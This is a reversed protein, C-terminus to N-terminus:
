KYNVLLSQTQKKKLPDIIQLQYMGNSLIAPLSINYSANGGPHELRESLVTEGTTNLLRIAYKGKIQNSFQLNITHGEVPNPYAKVSATQAAPIALKKFRIRFRNAASSAPDENITFSLTTTTTLDISTATKLYDDELIASLDSNSLSVGVIELKYQQQKMNWMRFQISDADKLPQRAEIALLKSDNEVAFNEGPNGIKPADEDDIANTFSNNFAITNADRMDSGDESYLRTELKMLGSPSGPRFGLGNGGNTKSSEHFTITGNGAGAKVLFAQGSEIITNPQGLVYSGGSIMCNFNNIASFTQYIGLSNGNLKKSDWVYFLNNVGPSRTLGTFDIASAYLNPVLTFGNAAVSVPQDGMNINGTTRLTTASSNNINGSIGKSRDGRIYLFYALKDDINNNTNNVGTWGTGNWYLMAANQATNDFGASQAVAIPGTSTIQTGYGPLNNDQPNPNADGEQWAQRITQGAGYTPVSLLRWSRFGNDPIYREVTVPGSIYNGAANGENISATKTATSRLVLNGFYVYFLGKVPVISDTIILKTQLQTIGSGTTNFKIAALANSIGDTTQDMRLYGNGNHQYVLSSSPSGKLIFGYSDGSISLAHGNLDVTADANSILKYVAADATLQPQNAVLPINVISIGTPVANCDWNAPDQWNSSVSGNWDCNTPLVDTLGDCNDDIGNTLNEAVGPNIAPNNDDCDTGGGNYLVYGPPLTYSGGSCNVQQYLSFDTYGDGDRDIYAYNPSVNDDIMGNCDNDIGDCIEQAGPHVNFNNDMCDTSDLIYSHYQDDALDYYYGPYFNDTRSVAPDGYGDNDSDKFLKVADVLGDCNDDIGNADIEEAGPHISGNTDDCDSNNSVYGSHTADCTQISNLADGYGDGDTDAYYTIPQDDATGNCDEDIGNNCIDVAGPHINPDNDDCDANDLVYGTHDAGCIYNSANTNGYGDGDSDAYYITGGLINNDNDDCDQQWSGDFRYWHTPLAAGFCGNGLNGFYGDEDNDIYFLGGQWVTNDNDNCDNGSPNTIYGDPVTFNAGVCVTNVDGYNGYGDGDNDRYFTVTQWVTNDNDDCDAGLTTVSYGPALNGYCTNEFSGYYGDGDGDFYVTAYQWVTANNDDCDGYTLSFGLPPTDAAAACTFATNFGGYGDHDADIYFEFQQQLTVIIGNSTANPTTACAANSTIRCKVLDNNYFGPQTFTPSNTGANITFNFNYITWQYVPNSGGNVPTATFTLPQDACAPISGQTLAISVSPTVSSVISLDAANDATVTFPLSAVVRIRYGNGPVTNSPIIANISGSSTTNISGINVPSAFSGAADSLQATFVNGTNFNAASYSISLSNGTCFSTSSLPGMAFNSNTVGTISNIYDFVNYWFNIAQPQPTWSYTPPTLSGFLAFGNGWQKDALAASDLLPVNGKLLTDLGNGTIVAHNASNGAFGYKVPTFPGHFITDTSDAAFVSFGTTGDAYTIFTSDFGCSIVYPFTLPACNIFLRGGGYVWSEILNRNSSLYPKLLVEDGDSGEIMVFSTAANFVSSPNTSFNGTTWNGTGFVQDMADVNDTAGWPHLNHVYFRQSQVTITISACTGGTVCGGEGRVYYTTTRNPSVTISSGMGVVAGDCSGSHWVWSAANNLNGTAISLTTSQPYTINTSSADLTPLTSPICATIIRAINAIPTGNYPFNINSQEGAILLKGDPQLLSTLIGVSNANAYPNPFGTGGQNFSYDLTGDSNLRALNNKSKGPDTAFFNFVGGLIIKGDSQLAITTVGSIEGTTDQQIIPFPAFSEDISGDPNLRAVGTRQVGASNLYGPGGIIIKGDPQIQISTIYLSQVNGPGPVGLPSNFSGDLSGDPNLRAINLRAIGNYASFFGAIIIKGDNQLAIANVYGENSVGLGPDFGADLSGDSNLRAIRSRAIGHYNYFDGGIIIKGDPQLLTAAPSNAYADNNFTGASFSLDQTGDPNARGGSMPTLSSYQGNGWIIIKGDPQVATSTIPHVASTGVNLWSGAPDFNEDLSGDTNIRAICRRNVGDYKQFHGSIIIKGDQQIALNTITGDAGAGTITDLSGNSNLRRIDFNNSAEHIYGTILKNNQTFEVFPSYNNTSAAVGTIASTFGNDILGNAQLRLMGSNSVDITTQGDNYQAFKGALFIKGDAQLKFVSGPLASATSGINFGADVTGDANFRKVNNVTVMPFYTVVKDDAQVLVKFADPITSFTNDITGDSNLRQAAATPLNVPNGDSDLGGVIIKGTSQLACSEIGGDVFIVGTFFTLSTSNFTNDVSGDTNLRMVSKCATGNYSSFWGVAIIKGDPQLAFANIVPAAGSGDTVTLGTGTNFGNDLSGDTNLRVMGVHLIGNFSTFDGGILVKGDAQLIITKVAGGAVGTGTNFTNDLAGNKTIRIINTNIAAGNYTPLSCYFVTKDDPQQASAGNIFGNVTAPATFVGNAPNFTPDLAGPQAYGVQPLLAILYFIVAILISFFKKM